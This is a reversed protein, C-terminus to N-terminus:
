RNFIPECQGPTGKPTPCFWATWAPPTAKKDQRYVRAGHQCQPAHAPAAQQPVSPQWGQPPQQAPGPPPIFQQAEDNTSAAWPPPGSPTNAPHTQIGGAALNALGKGDPNVILAAREEAYAYVEEFEAQSDAEVELYGYTVTPIRATIKQAM